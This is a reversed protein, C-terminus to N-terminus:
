TGFRARVTDPIEAARIGHDSGPDPRAWVRVEYGEVALRGANTIRHAVRFSRSSWHAVQSELTITDGFRSPSRFFAQADIIPVGIVGYEDFVTSWHVGASDFLHRTGRDFWSFYKPYYVIRAPDCDGWQIQIDIATTKM